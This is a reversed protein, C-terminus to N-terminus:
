DDERRGNETADFSEDKFGELTLNCNNMTSPDLLGHNWLKIMFFRWCWFLAPSSVLEKGHLKSFAECAWPVHGDALVRQKRVFSNWLHMLWKEDKTVDVFDDLMRRDEFDAIDDDVEDESDKDSLIKDLAMPQVRHSHYFQRKQLLMRNKPDREVTLKRAKAPHLHDSGSLVKYCEPGTCSQSIAMSVGPINSSSAVHEICEMSSPCELGINEGQQANQLYAEIPFSHSGEKECSVGYQIPFFNGANHGIFGKPMGETSPRASDMELFQVYKGNQVSNKLKRRRPRPCLFFTQLQPDVGDAVTEPRFVDIKVSVNVAQYEETVWYEFNFMDHSSGLHYRLGKFSACLMLCFPCSFDETVETKRVINNYDRYNFIVVGTSVRKKRRAQLKYHLCRRLFSPNNLSRLHLINYLEVPKCYILLSDEATTAEELSHVHFNDHCM